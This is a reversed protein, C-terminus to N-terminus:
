DGTRYLEIDDIEYSGGAGGGVYFNLETTGTLGM